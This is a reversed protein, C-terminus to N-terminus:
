ILWPKFDNDIMFDFGFIEFNNGKRSPDIFCFSSKIADTAIQKIKPYIETQFNYEKDSNKQINDL